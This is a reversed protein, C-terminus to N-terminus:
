RGVEFSRRTLVAGPPVLVEAGGAHPVVRRELAEAGLPGDSFLAYIAVRRADFAHRVAEPLEHPGSGPRAPIASPAPTGVAWAPYYWYVHAHEDVAFISLYRKGAPNAYAFAVDDDRDLRDDALRPPAGDNIRYVWLYAHADSAAGRAVLGKTVLPADRAGRFVLLVATAMAVAMLARAPGLRRRPAAELGLGRALREAAPLGRRDLRALLLHREYHERCPACDPLHARLAAEHAVSIDGAFHGAMWRRAKDHTTTM